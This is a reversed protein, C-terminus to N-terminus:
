SNQRFIDVIHTQDEPEPPCSSPYILSPRLSAPDLSNFEVKWAQFPCLNM